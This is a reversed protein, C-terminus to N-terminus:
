LCVLSFVLFCLGDSEDFALGPRLLDDVEDGARLVVGTSERAEVLHEAGVIPDPGLIKLLTIKM